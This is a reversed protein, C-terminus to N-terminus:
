DLPTVPAPPKAARSKQGRPSAKSEVDPVADIDDSAVRKAGKRMARRPKSRSTRAPASSAGTGAAWSSAAAGFYGSLVRALAAALIVLSLLIVATPADPMLAAGTTEPAPSATSADSASLGLPDSSSSSGPMSALELLAPLAPAERPPPPPPPLLPSPLLVVTPSPHLPPAPPSPPLPCPPPPPPSPPLPPGPACKVRRHAWLSEYENCIGAEGGECALSACANKEDGTLYVNGDPCKCTGGWNGVTEDNEVVVNRSNASPFVKPACIVKRFAGETEADACSNKHGGKCAVSACMNGEDGVQYKRGDPCTCWGGWVGVNTGMEWDIVNWPKTEGLHDKTWELAFLM